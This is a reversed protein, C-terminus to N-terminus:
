ISLRLFLNQAFWILSENLSSTYPFINRQFKISHSELIVHCYHSKEIFQWNIKGDIQTLWCLQFLNLYSLSFFILCTQELKNSRNWFTNQGKVTYIFQELSRLIKSFISSIWNTQQEVNFPYSLLKVWLSGSIYM